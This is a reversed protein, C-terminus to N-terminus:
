PAEDRIQIPIDSSERIRAQFLSPFLTCHEITKSWYFWQGPWVGPPVPITLIFHQNRGIDTMTATTSLLPYFQKIREGHYDTWTWLWRTTESPCDRVRDFGFVLDIHGTRSAVGDVEQAEHIVVPDNRNSWMIMAFGLLSGLLLGALGALINRRCMPGRTLAHLFTRM